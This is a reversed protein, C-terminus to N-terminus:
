NTTPAAPSRTGRNFGGHFEPKFDSSGGAVKKEGDDRRRYGGERPGRREEGGRVTRREAQQASAKLAKAMTAPMDSESLHLEKRLQTIGEETLVYYFYQWSFQLTVWGKSKLSQLAKIVHLNPVPTPIDPHKTIHTDKKIVIVGENFLYQHIAKRHATPMYM